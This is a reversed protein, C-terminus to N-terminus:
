LYLKTVKEIDYTRYQVHRNNTQSDSIQLQFLDFIYFKLVLVTPVSFITNDSCNLRFM